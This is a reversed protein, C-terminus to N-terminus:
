NTAADTTEAESEKFIPNDNIDQGLNKLEYQADDALEHDPYKEIFMEYYKKAQEFDKTNNAYIFGIMFMAKPANEGQPYYDLINQFNEIAEAYAEKNYQDYAMQFYESESKKEACGFVVLLALVAVAYLKLGRM